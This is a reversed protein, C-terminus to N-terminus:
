KGDGAKPVPKRQIFTANQKVLQEARAISLNNLDVRGFQCVFTLSTHKTFEVIEFQKATPEPLAKNAQALTIYKGAM